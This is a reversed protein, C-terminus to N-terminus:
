TTIPAVLTALLARHDSRPIVVTRLSTVQAHRTLIHDITVLPPIWRTSPFTPGWGSGTQAGADRYGQDLLDRFQRLDPTSNFDGAILVPAAGAIEALDAMRARVATIGSRWEDFARGYFTLPNMVHVAAVITGTPLGPIDARAVIMSGGKLPAIRKLPYRSWIGIGGAGPAPVLLSHPFAKRMGAAYFQRVWDPTLESFALVDAGDNALDVLSAIDARGERLNASLVRIQVGDVPDTVRNGFYWNLQVGLSVAVLVVAVLSLVVRRRLLAVVFVVVAVLVAYPASVAILLAINSALPLTRMVLALVAYGLAIM